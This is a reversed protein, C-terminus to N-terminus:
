VSISLKKNRLTDSVDMDFGLVNGLAVVGDKAAEKIKIFVEKFIVVVKNWIAKVKALFRKALDKLKDIFKWEELYGENLQQALHSYEEAAVEQTEITEKGADNVGLRVSQYVNYGMHNSKASTKWNVQLDIQEEYEKIKKSPSSVTGMPYGKVKFDQIMGAPKWCLMHEARQEAGSGFKQDGTAAEYVFALKYGANNDFAGGLIEKVDKANNNYVTEIKKIFDANAKNLVTRHKGGGEKYKIAKKMGQSFKPGSKSMPIKQDVGDVKRTILTSSHWEKDFATKKIKLANMKDTKLTGKKMKRIKQGEDKLIKAAADYEKKVERVAYALDVLTQNKKNTLALDKLNDVSAYYGDTTEAHLKNMADTIPKLLEDALGISKAAASATAISEGKKGSMLLAGDGNKVSYQKKGLIIDTKSTDSGGKGSWNKWDQTLAGSEQFEFEGKTGVATLVNNGFTWLNKLDTEEDDTKWFKKAKDFKDDNRMADLMYEKGADGGISVAQYAKGLVTELATSVETSVAEALYQKFSQM